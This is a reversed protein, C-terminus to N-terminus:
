HDGLERELYKLFGATKQVHLLDFSVDRYQKDSLTSFRSHHEFVTLLVKFSLSV